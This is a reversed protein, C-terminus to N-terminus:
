QAPAPPRRFDDFRGPAPLPSEGTSFLKQALSGPLANAELASLVSAPDPGLEEEPSEETQTREGRQRLPVRAVAVTDPSPLEETEIAIVTGDALAKGFV